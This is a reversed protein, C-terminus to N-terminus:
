PAAIGSVAFAQLNCSAGAPDISLVRRCQYWQNWPKRMYVLDDKKPTLEVPKMSGLLILINVDTEPIGANAKTYLSFDQRIGNFSIDTITPPLPDGWSDLGSSTSRRLVGLTLKGAFGKAIQRKLAGELPSAM